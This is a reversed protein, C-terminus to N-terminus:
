RISVCLKATNRVYGWRRGKFIADDLARGGAGVGDSTWRKSPSTITLQHLKKRLHAFPNGIYNMGLVATETFILM